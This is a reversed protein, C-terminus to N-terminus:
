FNGSGSSLSTYIGVNNLEGESQTFARAYTFLGRDHHSKAVPKRKQSNAVILEYDRLTRSLWLTLASALEEPGEVTDAKKASCGNRICRKTALSIDPENSRVYLIEM